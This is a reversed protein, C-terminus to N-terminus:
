GQDEIPDGMLLIPSQQNRSFKRSRSLPSGTELGTCKQTTGYAGMSRSSKGWQISMQVILQCLPRSWFHTPKSLSPALRSVWSRDRFVECDVQCIYTGTASKRLCHIPGYRHPRSLRRDGNPDGM